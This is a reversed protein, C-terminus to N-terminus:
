CSLIFAYFLFKIFADNLIYNVPFKTESKALLVTFGNHFNKDSAQAVEKILREVGQSYCSFDPIAQTKQAVQILLVVDTM